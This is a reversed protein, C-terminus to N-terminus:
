VSLKQEIPVFITQFIFFTAKLFKLDQATIICNGLSALAFRSIMGPRYLASFVTELLWSNETFQLVTKESLLLFLFSSNKLPICQVLMRTKRYTFIRQAVIVQGRSLYFIFEVFQCTQGPAIDVRCVRLFSHSPVHLNQLSISSVGTYSRVSSTMIRPLNDSSFIIHRLVNDRSGLRIKPNSRNLTLYTATLVRRTGHSPCLLYNVFM